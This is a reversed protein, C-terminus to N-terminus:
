LGKLFVDWAWRGAKSHKADDVKARYRFANGFEDTRKSLKYDLNMSDIGLAPLSYLENPESIGNHNKDQWLRLKTFVGDRADIKGDNNGGNALKDFEALALFGNRAEGSLPPSQPTFNGFLEKGNDIIGNNNRDLTLWADDSATTTWSLRDQVGNGDIDFLVGGPANTLTFGDGDIDILIPSPPVCCGQYCYEGQQCDNDTFCSTQCETNACHVPDCCDPKTGTSIGDVGTSGCFYGFSSGQDSDCTISITISSGAGCHTPPTETLLTQPDYYHCYGSTPPKCTMFATNKGSSMAILCRNTGCRIDAKSVQFGSMFFILFITFAFQTYNSAYTKRQM